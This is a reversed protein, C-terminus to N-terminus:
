QRTPSLTRAPLPRSSCMFGHTLRISARQRCITAATPPLLPSMQCSSHSANRRSGTTQTTPTTTTATWRSSMRSSSTQRKGFATPMSPVFMTTPLPKRSTQPQPIAAPNPYRINRANERCDATYLTFHM